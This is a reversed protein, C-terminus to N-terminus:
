FFFTSGAKVLHTENTFDPNWGVNVKFTPKIMYNFNLEGRWNTHWSSLTYSYTFIPNIFVYARKSLKLSANTQLSVGNSHDDIPLEVRDETVYVYSVGPYLSFRKNIKVGLIVGASLSWRGTGLGRKFSGTPLSVDAFPILFTLTKTMNRMVAMYYRIRFDSIGFKRTYDNYLFPVEFLVMNNPNFAYQGNVRLGYINHDGAVNKFEFGTNIQTYLNGANSPDIKQITDQSEQAQLGMPLLLFLFCAIIFNKLTRMHNDKNIPVKELHM